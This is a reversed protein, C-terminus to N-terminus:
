TKVVRLFVWVDLGAGPGALAALHVAVAPLHTLGFSFLPLMRRKQPIVPFGGRHKDVTNALVKRSRRGRAGRATGEKGSCVRLM